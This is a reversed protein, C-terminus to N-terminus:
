LARFVDAMSQTLAPDIKAEEALAPWSQKASIVTEIITKSKQRSIGALKGVQLLDELEFDTNKGNITM